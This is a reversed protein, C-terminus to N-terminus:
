KQTVFFQSCVQSPHEKEKKGRERERKSQEIKQSFFSSLSLFLFQPLFHVSFPHPHSSLGSFSDSSFQSQNSWYDNEEEILICFKVKSENSNNHVSNNSERKERKEKEGEIRKKKKERIKRKEKERLNKEESKHSQFLPDHDYNMLYYFSPVLHDTVPFDLSHNKLSPSDKKLLSLFLSLSLCNM